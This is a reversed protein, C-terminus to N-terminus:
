RAAATRAKGGGYFDIAWRRRIRDKDRGPDMLTVLDRCLQAFDVAYDKSAVLAMAHRMRVAIEGEDAAMVSTFRKEISDTEGADRYVRAMASAFTQSSSKPFRAYLGAVLYMARRQAEGCGQGLFPEVYKAADLPFSDDDRSLSRRLRAAAGPDKLTRSLWSIFGAYYDLTSSPATTDASATKTM